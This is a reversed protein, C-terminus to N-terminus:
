YNKKILNILSIAIESYKKIFRWYFNIFGLFFQVELINRPTPWGAIISIKKPDM